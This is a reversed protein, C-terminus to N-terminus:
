QKDTKFPFGLMKFLELGEERNTANTAICIELGFINEIEDSSIEPFPTHEKFGVTLNGNRDIIKESIGRFDRIRPFSVNVLKDLFDWMRQGRLTVACGIVMGQRIKFASISKKAKTMIPKQGAIRTLGKEVSEIYAKEKVQRGFGVNLVVKNVKPVSMINQYNFKAKLAPIIEKKYKEQLRM